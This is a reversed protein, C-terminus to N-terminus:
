SNTHRTRKHVYYESSVVIYAAAAAVAAVVSLRRRFRKSFLVDLIHLKVRLSNM